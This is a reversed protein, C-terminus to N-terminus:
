NHTYGWELVDTGNILFTLCERIDREDEIVAVDITSTPRSPALGSVPKAENTM